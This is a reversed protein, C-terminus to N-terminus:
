VAGHKVGFFRLDHSDHDVSFEWVSFWRDFVIQGTFDLEGLNRYYDSGATLPSAGPHCGSTGHEARGDTACTFVVFRGAIRVMNEFSALWESNHEFCEASVCVDFEGADYWLNEGRCVVDVGVGEGVDVGVYRTASFLDRVSGNVDLSGVELVSVNNFFMPYQAKVWEFFQRQESHSM